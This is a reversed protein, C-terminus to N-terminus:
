LFYYSKHQPKDCTLKVVPKLHWYVNHVKHKLVTQYVCPNNKNQSFSKVTVALARAYLRKNYLIFIFDVM